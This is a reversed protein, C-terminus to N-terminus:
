GHQEARERSARLASIGPSLPPQRGDLDTFGYAKALEAVVYVKGTKEMIQPDAALAAVARGTFRPSEADALRAVLEPALRDPQAMVRETKVLGPWLSIVVVGHPLLEHAMDATLRDVAAKGVGYPVNFTYRAAGVSSINVILGRRQAIMIPAAFVSAVYHSRLGVRHMDDWMEIPLEWFSGGGPRVGAYTAFVNNVLVDLRGQEEKVRRFLAEVDLDDRHDCRIAIGRGGLKNIIEATETITGPSSIGGERVTRGTVYVTAGAEGLGLAVGKGVGRSGGTVVAVKGHLTSSM